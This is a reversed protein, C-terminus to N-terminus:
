EATFYDNTFKTFEFIILYLSNICKLSALYFMTMQKIWINIHFESNTLILKVTPLVLYLTFVNLFIVSLIMYCCFM